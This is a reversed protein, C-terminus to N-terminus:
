AHKAAVVRGMVRHSKHGEHKPRTGRKEKATRDVGLRQAPAPPLLNYLGPKIKKNSKKPDDLIKIVNNILPSSNQYRYVPGGEDWQIYAKSRYFWVQVADLAQLTCRAAVCAEGNLSVADDIHHQRINISVGGSADFVEYNKMWALRTM